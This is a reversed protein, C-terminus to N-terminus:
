FLFHAKGIMKSIIQSKRIIGTLEANANVGLNEINILDIQRKEIKEQM